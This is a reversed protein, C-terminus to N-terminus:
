KTYTILQFTKFSYKLFKIYINTNRDFGVTNIGETTVLLQECGKMYFGDPAQLTIQGENEDLSLERVKRM